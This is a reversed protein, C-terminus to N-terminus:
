WGMDRPTRAFTEGTSRDHAEQRQRQREQWRRRDEELQRIPGLPVAGHCDMTVTHWLREDQPRTRFGAM